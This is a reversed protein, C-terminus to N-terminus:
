RGPRSAPPAPRKAAAKPAAARPPSGPAARSPSAMRAPPARATSAPKVAGPAAGSVPKPSVVAKVPAKGAAAKAVPKSSTSAVKKKINEQNSVWGDILDGRGVHELFAEAAVRTTAVVDAFPEPLPIKTKVQAPKNIAKVFTNGSFKVGRESPDLKSVDLVQVTGTNRANRERMNNLQKMYDHKRTGKGAAVKRVRKPGANTEVITIKIADGKSPKLAVLSEVFAAHDVVEKAGKNSTLTQKHAQLMAQFEESSDATDKTVGESLATKIQPATYELANLWKRLDAESGAIGIAPLYMVNAPARKIGTPAVPAFAVGGAKKMGVRLFKNMSKVENIRDLSPYNVQAM